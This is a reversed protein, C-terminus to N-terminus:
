RGLEFCLPTHTPMHILLLISSCHTHELLLCVRTSPHPLIVVLLLFMLYWQTTSSPVDVLQSLLVHLSPFAPPYLLSSPNPVSTMSLTSVDPINVDANWTLLLKVVEAKGAEAALVLATRQNEGKVNIDFNRLQSQVVAVNGEKAALHLANNSM